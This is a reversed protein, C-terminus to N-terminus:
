ALVAIGKCGPLHCATISRRQLVDPARDSPLARRRSVARACHLLITAIRLLRHAQHYEPPRTPAHDPGRQPHESETPWSTLLPEKELMLCIHFHSTSYFIYCFSFQSLFSHAGGRGQSSEKRLGSTPRGLLCMHQCVLMHMFAPLVLLLRLKTLM